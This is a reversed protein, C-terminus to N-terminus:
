VDRFSESNELSVSEESEGARVMQSAREIEASLPANLLLALTDLEGPTLAQIAEALQDLTLQITPM